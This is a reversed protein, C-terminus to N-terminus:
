NLQGPKVTAVGIPRRLKGEAIYCKIRKRWFVFALSRKVGERPKEFKFCNSDQCRCHCSKGLPHVTALPGGVVPSKGDSVSLKKDLKM